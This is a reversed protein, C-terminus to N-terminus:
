SRREVKADSASLAPALMWASAPDHARADAHDLPVVASQEITGTSVEGPPKVREVGLSVLVDCRLM